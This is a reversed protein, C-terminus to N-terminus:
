IENRCSTFCKGGYIVWFPLSDPANESFNGRCHVPTGFMDGQDLIPDPVTGAVRPWTQSSGALLVCIHIDHEMCEQPGDLRCSSFM